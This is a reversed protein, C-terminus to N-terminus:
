FRRAWWCPGTRNRGAGHCWSCMPPPPETNGSSNLVKSFDRLDPWNGIEPLLLHQEYAVAESAAVRLEEDGTLGALGLLALAIGAAGHSFGTLARSDLTKWARGPGAKVSKVLLHRGCAAAADLVAPTPRLRYLSLLGMLAGATGGLVDLHPDHAIAEPTVRLAVKGADDLLGEDELLNGALSLAYIHGGVGEALGLQVGAQNHEPRVRDRSLQERYDRVSALCLKRYRPEGTVRALAALFVAIGLRGSYFTDRTPQLRLDDHRLGSQPALWTVTGDPGFIAHEQLRHGISVAEDLLQSADPSAASEMLQDAPPFPTKKSPVPRTQDETTRLYLTAEIMKVQAALGAEDLGRVRDLVAPFSAGEFLNAVPGESPLELVDTDAGLTFHPVDLGEMQQREAQWVPWLRPREAQGTAPRKLIELGISREAGDRLYQPQQLYGMIRLYTSTARFLFRVPESALNWLPSDDALLADRRELLFRYMEAFGAVVAPIWDSLRVPEGNFTPVHSQPPTFSLECRRLVMYDTNVYAWQLGVYPTAQPVHSGLGSFDFPAKDVGEEYHWAPLMATRVVSYALERFAVQQATSPQGSSEDKAHQQMLTEADILVPQAGHAILNEFHCDIADLVYLLCLLIGARRYYSELQATDSCPEVAVFEVWGHSGCDVVKVTKIELPCGYQNLWALLENYSREAGLSRPKYVLQLADTRLAIVSRRGHHFDSLGPTLEIVQGLPAGDNFETEILAWDQVLHQLFAASAEVWLATLMGLLRALSAFETCFHILGDGLMHRVFQRYLSNQLPAQGTQAMLRALSSQRGVKWSEFTLQLPQAALDILQALLSRELVAHADESLRSYGEGTKAALKQRGLLVFPALIEEFPLPSGPRLLRDGSGGPGILDITVSATEFAAQLYTAWAPLPTGSRWVVPSIARQADALTLGDWALCRAFHERDDSAATRQWQALREQVLKDDADPSSTFRETDLREFLSSALGLVQYVADAAASTDLVENGAQRATM